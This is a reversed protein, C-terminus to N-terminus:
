GVGAGLGVEFELKPLCLIFQKLLDSNYIENVVATQTEPSGDVDGENHLCAKITAILRSCEETM